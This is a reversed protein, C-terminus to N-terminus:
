LAWGEMIRAAGRLEDAADIMKDAYRNAAVRTSFRGVAAKTQPDFIEYHQGSKLVYYRYIQAM